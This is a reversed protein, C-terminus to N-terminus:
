PKPLNFLKGITMCGTLPRFEAGKAVLAAMLFYIAWAAM